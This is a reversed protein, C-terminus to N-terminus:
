ETKSISRLQACVVQPKKDKVATELVAYKGESLSGPNIIVTEGIKDIGCGEHIHGCVVALPKKEEILERFKQSGAHLKENVADCVTDKPPNHSIMILNSWEGEGLIKFDSILDDESRENPTKGTFYSGGGSGVIAIGDTYNLVREANIGANELEDIFEPEDCNGLVAYIEDHMKVLADLAPKSTEPKFCECFDGAFLVADANKFENELKKLVSINGHIDSLVLFKM